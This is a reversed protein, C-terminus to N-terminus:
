KEKVTSRGSVQSHTGTNSVNHEGRQKSAKVKSSENQKMKQREQKKEELMKKLTLVMEDQAVVQQIFDKEARREEKRGCALFQWRYIHWMQTCSHSIQKGFIKGVQHGCSTGPSQQPPQHCGTEGDAAAETEAEGGPYADTEGGARSAAQEESSGAAGEDWVPVNRGAARPRCDSM